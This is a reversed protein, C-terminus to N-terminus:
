FLAAPSSSDIGFARKPKVEFLPPFEPKFPFNSILGLLMCSTSSATRRPTSPSRSPGFEVKKDPGSSDGTGGARPGRSRWPPRTRHRTSARSALVSRNSTSSHPNAGRVIASARSSRSTISSRQVVRDVRMALWSGTSAQCPVIGSGIAEYYRRRQGDPEHRM